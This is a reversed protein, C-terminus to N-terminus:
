RLKVVRLPVGNKPGMTINRRVRRDPQKRAPALELRRVLTALMIKTEYDSFAAGLCRRVGGGFPAFEHPAFKRELFREPRFEHPAPYLVPDHHLAEMLVLLLQKPTVTLGDDLAFDVNPVRAIDSVVPDIRLTEDIVASLYPLRQVDDSLPHADLESRLRALVEPHRALRSMCSALAISTTEHGALLLTILQDRIESEDMESGDDYRAALLLSLVDSGLTAARKQQEIKNAVWNNFRERTKIYRAWPRFWRTQLRPVFLAIPPIHHVMAQLVERLEAAEVEATVGFVTQVIVDLTFNTTLELARFEQGEALTAVHRDALAQMTAGFARLRAGHLPPALLKRQHKHVPGSTILVSRPGFLARLALGSFSSFADSDAAFVRRVHEPDATIVVEAQLARMRYVRGYKQAHRLAFRRPALAFELTNFVRPSRPGPLQELTPM